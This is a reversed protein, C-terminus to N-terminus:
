QVIESEIAGHERLLRAVRHSKHAIAHALATRGSNDKVDVDAGLAILAEVSFFGHEMAAKILPTRGENNRANLDAGEIVLFRMARRYDNFRCAAWHIATNGDADRMGVSAGNKILLQILYPRGAQAALMLPTLGRADQADITAGHEILAHARNHRGDLVERHLPTRGKDDRSNPGETRVEESIREHEEVVWDPIPHREAILEILCEHRHLYALEWASTVNLDKLHIDSGARILWAATELSPNDVAWMLPSRGQDDVADILAGARILMEAIECNDRLAAWHVATHGYDGHRAPDAGAHLLLAISERDEHSAATLLPPPAQLDNVPAGYRLLLKVRDIGGKFSVSTSCSVAIELIAGNPVAGRELLLELLDIDRTAASSLGAVANGGADLLMRLCTINNAYAAGAVAADTPAAGAGLLLQTIKPHGGEMSCAIEIAHDGDENLANVNVNKSILEAVRAADAQFIADFLADSM